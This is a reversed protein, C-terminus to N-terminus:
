GPPGSRTACEPVSSEHLVLRVTGGDPPAAPLRVSYSMTEPPGSRDHRLPLGSIKSISEGLVNGQGDLVAAHIHARRVTHGLAGNGRLRGAVLVGAPDRYVGPPEVKLSRTSHTETRVAVPTMRLTSCGALGLTGFTLVLLKYLKTKM